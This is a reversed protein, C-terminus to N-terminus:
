VLEDLMDDLCAGAPVMPYVNEEPETIFELVVPQKKETAVKVAEALAPEVDEHKTIRKGFCSYGESLKVFDPIYGPCDATPDNCITPCDAKRDLCTMSYRKNYFLEQWQRVMGLFGNNLVIAIVPIKNIAATALEQINMQFGGDGCIAFVLSDKKGLKAGLAAPLGFGMTGLGGSSLFTRPKRYEIFHTSWMQHQGVDTVIIDDDGMIKNIASIVEQPLVKESDKRYTLPFEKKWGDIQDKWEAIEPKEVVKNLKTLVDKVDGVVPVHAYVNKSISTPDIDIHVVTSEPSFASLKGTIRDDFRAGIAIILDCKQIAYNAYRTGHMGLMKLAEPEKEPFVGIGMLTTTVPIGTKKIFDFVEKHANSTIAGGGVYAVPKKATKIVEAAKQIQKINGEYTPQYTPMVISDPYPVSTKATQLDKPVDILVPGPRGTAAIYFAEKIIEPLKDIDKVLFNHKTVPRTIGTVDAEQFADNGIFHSPVQGTFMVMPVSDMYATALGTITNTAGPGSTAVVVSTKGTARAYGDAMHTMGQEHRSLLLKIGADYLKDFMDLVAGGPYGFIIEVKEKKLAEAIIEAGTREM